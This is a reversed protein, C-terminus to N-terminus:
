SFDMYTYLLKGYTLIVERQTTASGATSVPRSSKSGQQTCGTHTDEVRYSHLEAPCYPGLRHKRYLVSPSAEM